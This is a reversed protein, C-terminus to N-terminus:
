ASYGAVYADSAGGALNFTGPGPDFDATGSFQGTVYVNGAADTAVARGVDNATSGVAFASGFTLSPVTRDELAEVSLHTTTGRRRPRRQQSRRAEAAPKRSGPFSPFWM